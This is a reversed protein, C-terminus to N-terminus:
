KKFLYIISFLLGKKEEVKEEEEEEEEKKKEKEKKEEMGPNSNLTNSKRPLSEVV